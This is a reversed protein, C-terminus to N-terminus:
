RPGSVNNVFHTRTDILSYLHELIITEVKLTERRVVKSAGGVVDVELDDADNEEMMVQRLFELNKEKKM